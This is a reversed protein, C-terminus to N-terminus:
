ARGRATYLVGGIALLAVGGVIYTTYAQAAIPAAPAAETEEGRRRRKAKSIDLRAPASHGAARRKGLVPVTAEMTRQKKASRLLSMTQTQTTPTKRKPVLASRESQGRVHSGIKMLEKWTELPIKNYHAGTYVEWTRPFEAGSGVSDIAAKTMSSMKLGFEDGYGSLYLKYLFDKREQDFEDESFQEVNLFMPAFGELAHDGPQVNYMTTVADPEFFSETVQTLNEIYERFMGGVGAHWGEDWQGTHGKQYIMKQAGQFTRHLLSCLSRDGGNFVKQLLQGHSQAFEKVGSFDWLPLIDEKWIRRIVDQIHHRACEAAFKDRVEQSITPDAICLKVAADIIDQGIQIDVLVFHYVSEQEMCWDLLAFLDNVLYKIRTVSLFWFKVWKAWKQYAFEPGIAWHRDGLRASFSLEMQQPNESKHHQQLVKGLHTTSVDGKLYNNFMINRLLFGYQDAVRWYIFDRNYYKLESAM